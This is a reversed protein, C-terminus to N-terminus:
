FYPVLSNFKNSRPTELGDIETRVINICSMELSYSHYSWLDLIFDVIHLRPLCFATALRPNYFLSCQHLLHSNRVGVSESAFTDIISKSDPSERQFQEDRSLTEVSSM